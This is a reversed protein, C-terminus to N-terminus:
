AADGFSAHLVAEESLAHRPLAAVVRGERFVLTRDCHYFEDMETSYWLFCRGAEAEARILRYIESKTGIDVGRLPDDMVIIRAASSLARAFLVKQQNGGSLTLINADVQDTRIGIRARWTEAHARIAAASLLGGARFRGFQGAALNDAISWLPLVGDARRDGAIFAPVSALQAQRAGTMLARLWQSQGHGALGALGVIEGAHLRLPADRGPLPAELMLPAASLDSGLASAESTTNAAHGMAEVLRQRNVQDAAYVATIRGDRMVAVRDAAHVIEELLHSILITSVGASKQTQIFALLQGSSQSDLSSTPEDLIVLRLPRDTVTFARAIEVMQQRSLSLDGVVDGARIDHDPFVRDLQTVILDAARRRWGRGSLSPHMIRANEAVTLNPCLSLEQFVCRVGLATARGVDFRGAITEGAITLTGADRPLVGTLINMLTSKGAGNHGVVGVVEGAEITLTAGQLARVAGFAKDIGELRHAGHQAQSM